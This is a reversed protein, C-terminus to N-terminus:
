APFQHVQLTLPILAKAKTPTQASMQKMFFFVGFEECEAKVNEPWADEMARRGSGTESGYILWDPKTDHGAISLGGIAPEYSIFSILDFM